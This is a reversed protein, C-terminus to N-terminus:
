QWSTYVGRSDESKWVRLELVIGVNLIDHIILWGRSLYYQKSQYFDCPKGTEAISASMLFHDSTFYKNINRSYFFFTPSTTSLVCVQLQLSGPELSLELHNQLLGKTEQNRDEWYPVWFM